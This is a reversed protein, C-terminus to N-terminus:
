IKQFLSYSKCICASAISSLNFILTCQYKLGIIDKRWHIKYHSFDTENMVATHLWIIQSNMNQVCMTFTSNIHKISSACKKEKEKPIYVSIFVIIMMFANKNVHIGLVPRLEFASNAVRRTYLPTCQLDTSPLTM